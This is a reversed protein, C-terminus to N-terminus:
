EDSLIKYFIAGNAGLHNMRDKLMEEIGTELKVKVRYDIDIPSAEYLRGEIWVLGTGNPFVKVVGGIGRIWQICQSRVPSMAPDIIYFYGQEYGLAVGNPYLKVVGEKDPPPIIREYPEIKVSNENYTENKIIRVIANISVGYQNALTQLTAGQTRKLRIASAQDMTLKRIRM